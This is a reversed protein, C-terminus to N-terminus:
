KNLAKDALKFRCLALKIFRQCQTNELVTLMDGKDSLLCTVSVKRFEPM